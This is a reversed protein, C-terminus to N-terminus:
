HAFVHNEIVVSVTRSRVWQDNTKAPNYFYLSGNTPDEGNLARRAAERNNRDPVSSHIIGSGAPSFQYHDHSKEFIVGRITNPFDRHNMRNLIVAGVAIQGRLSEGRAEAHIMKALWEVEEESIGTATRQATGPILLTQGILINSSSLNNASMLANVTTGYKNAIQSLTDGAVVRYHSTQSHTTGTRQQPSLQLVQGVHIMDSTLNNMRKINAVTTGHRNAILFLTDGQRVRYSSTTRQTDGQIRLSQGVYLTDGTLNNISRLHEVSTGFRNALIWLTDGSSVIYTNQVAQQKTRPEAAHTKSETNVFALSTVLVTGAMVKAGLLKFNPFKEDIYNKAKTEISQADEKIEEFETAFEVSHTDLFLIIEYGDHLKELKYHTFNM